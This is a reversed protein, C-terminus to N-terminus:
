LQQVTRSHEIGWVSPLESLTGRNQVTWTKGGDISHRIIGYKGVSWLNVGDPTWGAILRARMTQLSRNRRVKSVKEMLPDHHPTKMRAALWFEHQIIVVLAACFNARVDTNRCCRIEDDTASSPTPFESSLLF